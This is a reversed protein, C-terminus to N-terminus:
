LYSLHYLLLLLLSIVDFDVDDWDTCDDVEGNEEIMDVDVDVATTVFM